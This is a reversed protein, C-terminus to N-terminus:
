RPFHTLQNLAKAAIRWAKAYLNMATLPRNGAM